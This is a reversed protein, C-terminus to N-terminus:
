QLPSGLREIWFPLDGSGPLSMCPLLLRKKELPFLGAHFGVSALFVYVWKGTRCWETRWSIPCSLKAPSAWLVHHSEGVVMKCLALCLLHFSCVVHNVHTDGTGPVVSLAGM